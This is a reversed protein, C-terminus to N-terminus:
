SPLNVPHCHLLLHPTKRPTLFETFNSSSIPLADNQFYMGPGQSLNIKFDSNPGFYEMKGDNMPWAPNLKIARIRCLAEHCHNCRQVHHFRCHWPLVCVWSIIAKSSTSPARSQWVRKNEGRLCKATEKSWLKWFTTLWERATTDHHGSLADGLPDSEIICRQQIVCLQWIAWVKLQSNEVLGLRSSWTIWSCSHGHEQFGLM